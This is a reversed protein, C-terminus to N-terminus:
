GAIHAAYEAHGAATMHLGDPLMPLDWDLASVYCAGHEVAADELAADIDPLAGREPTTAPGVVVVPTGDPVADLLDAAADRVDAPSAQWDNVGGQVIVMDAPAALTAARSTYEQGGCFGGNVFGTMGVADLTVTAGATEAYVNVWREDRTGGATVLGDGASYSDGLVTVRTPGDGVTQVAGNEELYATVAECGEANAIASRIPVAAAVGSVGVGVVVAAILAVKGRTLM